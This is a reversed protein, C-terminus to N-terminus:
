IIMKISVFTKHEKNLNKLIFLNENIFILVNKKFITVVFYTYLIM